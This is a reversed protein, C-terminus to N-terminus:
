EKKTLWQFGKNCVRCKTFVRGSNAVTKAQLILKPTGCCDGALSRWMTLTNIVLVLRMQWGPVRTVWRGVANKCGSLPVWDYGSEVFDDVVRESLWIRISDQGTEASYGYKNVTSRVTIGVVDDIPLLYQYEGLVVGQLIFDPNIRALATEFQERSFIEISM